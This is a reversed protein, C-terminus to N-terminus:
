QEPKDSKYLGFGKGYKVNSLVAQRALGVEVCRTHGETILIQM